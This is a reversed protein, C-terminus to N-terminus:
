WDSELWDDILKHTKKANVFGGRILSAVLVLFLGVLILVVAVVRFPLSLIDRIM